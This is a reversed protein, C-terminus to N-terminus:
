QNTNGGQAVYLVQSAEDLFLGNTAHNEESRPLGRVIDVKDWSSGNKTLKSIIGSNTDLNKDPNVFGGGVRYDSSTVYIVPVSATGTVIMGTAQRAVTGNHVTGDDNHNPIQKVLNIIQFSAVTYSTPSNRTISAAIIRGDMQLIYLKNDPGFCITTPDVLPSGGFNTGNLQSLTFSQGYVKATSLIGITSSILVVATLIAARVLTNFRM